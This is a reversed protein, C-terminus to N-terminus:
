QLSKRALEMMTEVASTEDSAVRSMKNALEASQQDEFIRKKLPKNKPVDLQTETSAPHTSSTGADGSSESIGHKVQVHNFRLDSSVKEGEQIPRFCLLIEKELQEPEEPQEM